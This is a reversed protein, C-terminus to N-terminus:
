KKEVNSNLVVSAEMFEEINVILDFPHSPATPLMHIVWLWCDHTLAGDIVGTTEKLLYNTLELFPNLCLNCLTFIAQKVILSFYIYLIFELFLSSLCNLLSSLCNLLLHSLCFDEKHLVCRLPVVNLMM